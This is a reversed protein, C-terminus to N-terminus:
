YRMVTYGAFMTIICWHMIICKIYLNCKNDPACLVHSNNRFVHVIYCELACGPPCFIVRSGTLFIFLFLTFFPTIYPIIHNQSYFTIAFIRRNTM